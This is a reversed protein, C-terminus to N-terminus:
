INMKIVIKMRFVSYGGLHLKINEGSFVSFVEAMIVNVTLHSFSTPWM